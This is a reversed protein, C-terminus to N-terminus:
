RDVGEPGTMFLCWDFYDWGTEAQCEPCAIGYYRSEVERISATAVQPDPELRVLGNFEGIATAVDPPLPGPGPYPVDVVLEQESAYTAWGQDAQGDPGPVAPPAAKGCRACLQEGM